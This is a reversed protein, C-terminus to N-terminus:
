CALEKLSIEQIVEKTNKFAFSSLIQSLCPDVNEFAFSSLFHSLYPHRVLIRIVAFIYEIKIITSIILLEIHLSDYYLFYYYNM